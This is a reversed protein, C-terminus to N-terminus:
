DDKDPQKAQFWPYDDKMEWGDYEILRTCAHRRGQSYIDANDSNGKLCSNMLQDRTCSQFGCTSTVFKFKDNVKCISFLFTKTGDFKEPGCYSFETCYFFYITSNNSVYANFGSGDAFEVEYDGRPTSKARKLASKIHKDLHENYWKEFCDSQGECDPMWYELSDNRAEETQIAQTMVSYFKKLKNVAVQKKYNNIVTPLTMAAVIGIIGLTILTEALTFGFGNRM